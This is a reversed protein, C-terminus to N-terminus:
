EPSLNVWSKVNAGGMGFALLAKEWSQISNYAWKSAQGSYSGLCMHKYLDFVGWLLRASCRPRRVTFVEFNYFEEDGNAVFCRRVQYERMRASLSEFENHCVGGTIKETVICLDSGTKILRDPLFEELFYVTDSAISVLIGFGDEFVLSFPHGELPADYRKLLVAHTIVQRGDAGWDLFVNGEHPELVGDIDQSPVKLAPAM